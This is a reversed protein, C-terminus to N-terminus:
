QGAWSYCVKVSLFVNFISSEATTMESQPCNSCLRSESCAAVTRRSDTMDRGSKTLWLGVTWAAMAPKDTAHRDAM